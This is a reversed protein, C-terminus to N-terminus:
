QRLGLARALDAYGPMPDGDAETLLQIAVHDAGADLHATLAAAVQEASGHAVLADVLADSGGDAIDQETYGLRRLNSTYNVLGLYPTRVRRRGLDRARDADTDVVAKHEPALFPEAGLIERALRTHDPPVLYPIAGGAHEGALRLV